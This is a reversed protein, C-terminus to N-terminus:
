DFWIRDRVMVTRRDEGTETSTHERPMLSQRWVKLWAWYNVIISWRFKYASCESRDFWEVLDFEVVDKSSLIANSDSGVIWWMFVNCKVSHIYNYICIVSRVKRLVDFWSAIDWFYLGIFISIIIRQSHFQQSGRPSFGDSWFIKGKQKWGIWPFNSTFGQYTTDKRKTMITTSPSISTEVYLVSNDECCPVMPRSVGM